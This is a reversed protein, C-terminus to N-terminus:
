AQRGSAGWVRAIRRGLAMLRGNLYSLLYPSIGGLRVHNLEHLDEEARQARRKWHDLSRTLEDNKEMVAEAWQPHVYADPVDQADESGTPHTSQNQTM